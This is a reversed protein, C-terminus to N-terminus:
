IKKKLLKTSRLKHIVDFQLTYLVGPFLHELRPPPPPPLTRSAMSPTVLMLFPTYRSEDKKKPSTVGM